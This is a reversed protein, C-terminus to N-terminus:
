REGLSVQYLYVISNLVILAVTILPFKKTPVDDWIPFM